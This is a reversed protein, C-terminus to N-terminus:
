SITGIELALTSFLFDLGYGFLFELGFSFNELQLEEGFKCVVPRVCDHSTLHCILNLV